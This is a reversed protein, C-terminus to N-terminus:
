ESLYGAEILEKVPILGVSDKIQVEIAKFRDPCSSSHYDPEILNVLYTHGGYTGAAEYNIEYRIDEYYGVATPVTIKCGSDYWTEHLLLNEYDTSHKLLSFDSSQSVEDTPAEEVSYSEVIPFPSGM